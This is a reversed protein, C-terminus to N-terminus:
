RKFEERIVDLLQMGFGKGFYPDTPELATAWTWDNFSDIFVLKNNGLNMKAVNCMTRFTNVDYNM